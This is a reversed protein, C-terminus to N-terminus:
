MNALLADLITQVKAYPDPGGTEISYVGRFGMQKSIRIANAFDFRPSMKVHSVNYSLPYLLRLGRARSDEDPFNGIDPNAYTGSARILQALEEPPTRGRNEMIVAVKKSKGYASLTKLADVCPALDEPLARTGQNVMISPCAMMSAIDIWKKTLDVAKARLAPDPSCPSVIGAYGKEDLEVPMNVMKSKAEKLRGSFKRCYSPEMSLFNINLVDVNHIHYRDAMMEPFDMIDLQKPTAGHSWDRVETMMTDFDNSM